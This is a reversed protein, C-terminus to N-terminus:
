YYKLVKIDTRLQSTLKNWPSFIKKNGVIM